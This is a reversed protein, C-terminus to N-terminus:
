HVFQRRQIVAFFPLQFLELLHSSRLDMTKLLATSAMIKLQRLWNQYDAPLLKLVLVVSLKIESQFM